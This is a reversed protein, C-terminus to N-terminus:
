GPPPAGPAVIEGCWLLRTGTADMIRLSHPTHLLEAATPGALVSRSAGMQVPHLAATLPANAATCRGARVSAPYQTEPIFIGLLSITVVLNTGAATIRADGSVHSGATPHLAAVAVPSSLAPPSPSPAVDAALLFSALALLSM